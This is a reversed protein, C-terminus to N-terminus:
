PKIGFESVVIGLAALSAPVSVDGKVTNNTNPRNDDSKYRIVVKNPFHIFVSTLLHGHVSQDSYSEAPATITLAKIIAYGDTDASRASM